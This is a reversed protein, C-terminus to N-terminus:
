VPGALAIVSEAVQRLFDKLATPDQRLSQYFPQPHVAYIRAGRHFEGKM